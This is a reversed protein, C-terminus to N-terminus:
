LPPTSAPPRRWHTLQEFAFGLRFLDPEHYPPAIMEMGVPVGAPTFGAPLCISPMWSQAAIVTNTPYTLVTWRGARLEEHTPTLVKCAPFCITDLNHEAMLGVIARQFAERAALKRYYTPDDEPKLPGDKVIAEILEHNKHYKGAKYIEDISRYPLNPRSALFANIDHRSHIIYLSTEEIFEKLNALSIDILVVRAKKMAAIAARVVTNVQACDADDDSGFAEKLVGVRADKLGDVNIGDAYSGKHGAITFATTYKDKPDYGVISDLLIAADTVTRALPGATDQFVVLPSLGARSILGPTVRVGVLNNASAPLRISGGTDEGIGVTALNASVAAGTGASSGGPDRELAYPDKTEGHVSGYGYWSAAFDPMTTKGLIIAGAQKLKTVITADEDPVHGKLAISGFSTEIGKTEAQDKVAVPIGHLPGVFKGTQAFAADLKHADTLANPNTTVFANLAPGKQDYASIRDLYRQTLSACNLTGSRFADHIKPITTEELVFDMM